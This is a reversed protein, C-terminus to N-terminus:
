YQDEEFDIPGQNCTTCTIIQTECMTTAGGKANRMKSSNLSSITEKNLVLKKKLCKKKMIM